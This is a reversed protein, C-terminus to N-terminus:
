KVTQCTEELAKMMALTQSAVTEEGSLMVLWVGADMASAVQFSSTLVVLPVSM